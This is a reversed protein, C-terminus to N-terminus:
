PRVARLELAGASARARVRERHWTYLGSGIVIAAGVWTWLDPFNDFAFVGIVTSGVISSYSFPALLSPPGHTFARVQFYQGLLNLAGCAGLLAWALPPVERWLALAPGATVLTGVLVTYLLTTLPPDVIGMKRTIIMGLAWVAASLAPYLAAPEFSASTPRVIVLVGMFGIVVAAWRRVGVQEGLLPISLATVFLPAVYGTATAQALPLYALGSVFLLGAAAVCIGRGAQYGLRRTRLPRRRWQAAAVPALLVAMCLYRVWVVQLPHYAATLYKSLGDVATFLMIAAVMLLIAKIPQDAAGHPLNVV